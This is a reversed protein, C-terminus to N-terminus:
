RSFPCFSSKYQTGDDDVQWVVDRHKGNSPSSKYVPPSSKLKLNYVAVNGDHLGTLVMHPHQPHMDVSTVGCSASCIFEPHSPNKLSFVCAYGPESPQYFNDPVNFTPFYFLQIM